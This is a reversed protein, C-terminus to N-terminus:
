AAVTFTAMGSYVNSGVETNTRAQGTRPDIVVLRNGRVAMANGHPNRQDGLAVGAGEGAAATFPLDILAAEERSISPPLSDSTPFELHFRLQVLNGIKTFAASGQDFVLGNGRPVFRGEEYDDLTRPHDSAIPEDPFVVGGASVRTASGGSTLAGRETGRYKTGVDELVPEIVSLGYCAEGLDIFTGGGSGHYLGGIVTTSESSGLSLATTEAGLEYFGGIVTCGRSNGKRAVIIRKVVEHYNASLICGRAAELEIALEIASIECNVVSNANGNLVIGITEPLAPDGIVGVIRCGDFTNVNVNDSECRVAISKGGPKPRGPCSVTLGEFRNVWSRDITVAARESEGRGFEGSVSVSSFSSRVFGHLQLGHRYNAGPAPAILFQGGTMTFNYVSADDGERAHRRSGLIYEGGTGLLQVTGEAVLVLGRTGSLDITDVKYIGAPFVIRKERAELKSAAVIAARIADGDAVRGDGQAGFQRVSLTAVSEPPVQPVPDGAVAPVAAGTVLGTGGALLTRRDLLADTAPPIPRSSTDHRDKM